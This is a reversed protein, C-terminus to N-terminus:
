KFLSDFNQHLSSGNTLLIIAVANGLVNHKALHGGHTCSRELNCQVDIHKLIGDHIVTQRDLRHKSCLKVVAHCWSM